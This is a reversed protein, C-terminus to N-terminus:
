EYSLESIVQSYFEIDSPSVSKVQFFLNNAKYSLIYM